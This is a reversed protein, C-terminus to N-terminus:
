PLRGPHGLEKRERIPTVASRPLGLYLATHQIQFVWAVCPSHRQSSCNSDTFRSPEVGSTNTLILTTCPAFRKGVASCFTFVAYRVTATHPRLKRPMFGHSLDPLYSPAVSGIFWLFDYRTDENLTGVLQPMIRSKQKSVDMCLSSLGKQRM